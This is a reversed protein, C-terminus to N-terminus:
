LLQHTEGSSHPFDPLGTEESRPPVAVRTAKAVQTRRSSASSNILTDMKKNFLKVINTGSVKFM